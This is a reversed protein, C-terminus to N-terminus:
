AANALAADSCKRDPEFDDTEFLPRLEIRAQKDGGARSAYRRIWAIAEGRSNTRVNTYGMLEEAETCPGEAFTRVDGSYEIRWGKASAQSASANLLLAAHALEQHYKGMQAILSEPAMAAVDSDHSARVIITLHMAADGQPFEIREGLLRVVAFDVDWLPSNPIFRL